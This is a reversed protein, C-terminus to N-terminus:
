VGLTAAFGALGARGSTAGWSYLKECAEAMAPEDGRLLAGALLQWGEVYHGQAAAKLFAGSLLTTRPIAVQAIEQALPAKGALWLAAMVGVLYDDGAPTLGPGLGALQEAAEAVGTGAEIADGL